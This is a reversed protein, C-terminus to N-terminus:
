VKGAKIFCFSKFRQDLPVELGYVVAHVFLCWCGCVSLYLHVDWATVLVALEEGGGHGMGLELPDELGPHDGVRVEGVPLTSYLQPETTYVINFRVECMM